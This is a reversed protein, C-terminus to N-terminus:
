AVIWTTAPRAVTSSRPLLFPVKMPSSRTVATRSSESRSTMQKPLIPPVNRLAWSRDVILSGWGGPLLAEGHSAEADLTIAGDDGVILGGWDRLDNWSVGFDHRNLRGSAVFGARTKPGHDVGNEWWPTQWTGLFTARLTIPRTVGRITIEGQVKADNSGELDIKDSKFTITPFKAVDLFDPSKLHADRQSEGMWLESADITVEVSANKRDSPDFILTGRVNKFHGRVYTVMMHRVSFEAATHGPEFTWRQM